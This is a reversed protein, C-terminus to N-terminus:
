SITFIQDVPCLVLYAKLFEYKLKQLCSPIVAKGPIIFIALDPVEPLDEPGAYAKHGLVTKETPHIPFFKGQYGDKLISLAQITSMKGPDNNAGAVAISRPNMLLQLPSELM